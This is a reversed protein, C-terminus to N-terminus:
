LVVNIIMIKLQKVSHDDHQERSSLPERRHGVRMYGSGRTGTQLIERNILLAQFTSPLTVPENRGETIM